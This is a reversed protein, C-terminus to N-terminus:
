SRKRGKTDRVMEALEAFIFEWRKDWTHDRLVREKAKRAMALRSDPNALFYRIKAACDSMSDFTAIEDATFYRGLRRDANCLHFGGIAPIEFHRGKIQPRKGADFGGATWNLGLVIKSACLTKIMDEHSLLDPPGFINLRIGHFVTLDRLFERRGTYRQGMFTVDYIADPAPEIPRWADQNVGYQVHRAHRVCKAKYLPIADPDNTVVLDYFPALSLSVPLRWEDDCCFLVKPCNITALLSVPIEDSVYVHFFIDVDAVLSALEVLSGTQYDWRVIEHGMRQFQGMFNVQSYPDSPAALLIRM